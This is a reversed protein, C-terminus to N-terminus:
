GGIRYAVLEPKEGAAVPLGAPAILTNGEVVVGTNTGAPLPLERILAGTNANFAYVVGNFTTAFVVNNVTTVAGFPSTAFKHIWRVAGTATNIAVLEGGGTATEEPGTQKSYSVPHNVVPM